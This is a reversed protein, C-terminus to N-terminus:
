SSLRTVMRTCAIRVSDEVQAYAPLDSIQVRELLNSASQRLARLFIMRWSAFKYLRAKTEFAPLPTDM